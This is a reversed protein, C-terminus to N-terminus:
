EVRRNMWYRRGEEAAEVMILLAWFPWVLADRVIRWRPIKDTEAYPWSIFMMAAAILAYAAVAYGIWFMM